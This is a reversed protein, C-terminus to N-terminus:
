CKCEDFLTNGFDENELTWDIMSPCILKATAIGVITATFLGLAFIWYKKKM